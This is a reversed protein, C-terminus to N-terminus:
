DQALPAPFGREVAWAILLDPWVELPTGTIGRLGFGHGGREFVRLSTPVQATQLARFLMLTHDLPVAQDDAAHLLFTPPQGSHAIQELSAARVADAPPNAGILNERSRRHAFPLEMTVVPYMLGVLDPKAGIEDIADVPDHLHDSARSALSGTLHGGASFGLALVANPSIGDLLARARIMRVARQIDELPADSGAQWGQHPLRYRLVYVTYGQRAFQVASEYGEKDVVVWAYGGGPAILIAGGNPRLPRFVALAPVTVDHLARDPLGFQNERHVVHQELGVPRAGPPGLPWIEVIADPEIASGSVPVPRASDARALAATLMVAAAVWFLLAALTRNTRKAQKM